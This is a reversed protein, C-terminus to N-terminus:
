GASSSLRSPSSSHLWVDVEDIARAAVGLETLLGISIASRLSVLPVGYHGALSNLADVDGLTSDNLRDGKRARFRRRLIRWFGEFPAPSLQDAFICSVTALEARFGETGHLAVTGFGTILGLLAQSAHNVSALRIAATPSHLAWFGCKCSKGPTLACRSTGKALCTAKNEGPQWVYDVAWSLLEDESVRWLRWGIVPEPVTM